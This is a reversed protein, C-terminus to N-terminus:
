HAHDDEGTVTAFVAPPSAFQDAGIRIAARLESAAQEWSQEDSAHIMALPEGSQVPVGVSPLDSLGVSPDVVDEGRQRGGGLSVM